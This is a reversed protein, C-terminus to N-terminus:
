QKKGCFPCFRFYLTPIFDWGNDIEISEYFVTVSIRGLGEGGSFVGGLKDIKKMYDIFEKCCKRKREKM